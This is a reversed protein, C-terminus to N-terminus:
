NGDKDTKKQRVIWVGPHNPHEIAYHTVPNFSLLSLAGSKYLEWFRRWEIDTLTDDGNDDVRKVLNINKLFKDSATDRDVRVDEPYTEGVETGWPSNELYEAFDWGKEQLQVFWNRGKSFKSILGHNELEKTLNKVYQLSVADDHQDFVDISNQQVERLPQRGSKDSAVFEIISRIVVPGKGTRLTFARWPKNDPKAM